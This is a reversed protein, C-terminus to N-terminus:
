LASELHAEADLILHVARPRGAKNVFLDAWERVEGTVSHWKSDSYFRQWATGTMSDTMVVSGASPEPSQATLPTM